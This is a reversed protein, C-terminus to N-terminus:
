RNPCVHHGGGLGPRAPQSCLASGFDPVPVPASAPVTTRPPRGSEGVIDNLRMLREVRKHNVCRGQRALEATVRPSGYTSGSGDHIARIQDVLAQEDRQARRPGAKERNKWDYYASTSVLAVPLRWRCAM